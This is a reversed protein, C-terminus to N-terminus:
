HRGANRRNKDFSIKRLGVESLGTKTFHKGYSCEDTFDKM